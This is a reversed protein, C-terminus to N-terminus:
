HPRDAPTKPLAPPVPPLTAALRSRGPAAHPVPLDSPPAATRTAFSIRRTLYAAPRVWLRPARAPLNRRRKGDAACAPGTYLRSCAFSGARPLRRHTNTDRDRDASRRDRHG